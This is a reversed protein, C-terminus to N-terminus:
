GHDKEKPTTRIADRARQLTERSIKCIHSGDDEQPSLHTTEYIMEALAIELEGLRRTLAAIADNEPTACLRLGSTDSGEETETFPALAARARRIGGDLTMMATRKPAGTDLDIKANMMYGIAASLASALHSVKEELACIADAGESATDGYGDVDNPEHDYQIQRLREVIDAM